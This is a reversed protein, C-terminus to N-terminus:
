LRPPSNASVALYLSYAVGAQRLSPATSNPALGAGHTRRPLCGGVARMQSAQERCLTARGPPLVGTQARNHVLCPNRSPRSYRNLTLSLQM